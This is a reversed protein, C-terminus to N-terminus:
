EYQPGQTNCVFWPPKNSCVFPALHLHLTGLTPSCATGYVTYPRLFVTLICHRSQRLRLRILARVSRLPITPLFYPTTRPYVAKRYILFLFSALVLSHTCSFAAFRLCHKLIIFIWITSLHLSAYRPFLVRVLVRRGFILGLPNLFCFGLGTGPQNTWAPPGSFFFIQGRLM